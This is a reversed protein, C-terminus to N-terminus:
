KAAKLCGAPLFFSRVICDLLLACCSRCLFILMQPELKHLLAKWITLLVFLAHASFSLHMSTALKEDPHATAAANATICLEPPLQRLKCWCDWDYSLPHSKCNGLINWEWHFCGYILKPFVSLLPEEYCWFKGFFKWKKFNKKFHWLRM